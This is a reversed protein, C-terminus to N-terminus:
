YGGQTNGSDVSRRHLQRRRRMARPGKYSAMGERDRVECLTLYERRDDCGAMSRRDPQELETLRGTLRELHQGSLPSVPGRLAASSAEGATRSRALQSQDGKSRM